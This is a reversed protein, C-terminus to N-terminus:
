QSNIEILDGSSEWNEMKSHESVLANLCEFLSQSKSLIVIKMPFEIGDSCFEPITFIAHSVQRTLIELAGSNPPCSRQFKVAACPPSPRTHAQKNEVEKLTAILTVM